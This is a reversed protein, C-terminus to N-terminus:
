PLDLLMLDEMNIHELEQVVMHLVIDAEFDIHSKLDDKGLLPFLGHEM